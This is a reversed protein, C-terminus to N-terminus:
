YNCIDSAIQKFYGVAHEYLSDLFMIHARVKVSARYVGLKRNMKWNNDQQSEM